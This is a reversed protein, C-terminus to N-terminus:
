SSTAPTRARPSPRPRAAVPRASGFYDNSVTHSYKLPSSPGLEAGGYLETTDFNVPRAREAPLLLQLVGVDFGFDKAIEGKYGGYFDM